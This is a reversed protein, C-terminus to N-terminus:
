GASPSLSRSLARLAAVDSRGVIMLGRFSVGTQRAFLVLCLGCSLAYAVTSAVAAVVFSHHPLFALNIVVNVALGLLCVATVVRIRGEVVLYDLVPGQLVLAVVGPLIWVLAPASGAFAPGYALRVLIGSMLGILLAALSLGVVMVRNLRCIRGVLEEREDPSGQLPTLAIRASVAVQLLVEALAVAVSYLGLERLGRQWDVLFVDLRWVLILALTVVNARLSFRILGVTVASLSASFRIRRPRVMVALPLMSGVAWLAIATSPTLTETLRAIAASVLFFLAGAMSAIGLERIRDELYAVVTWHNLVLLTPTAVVIWILDKPQSIRLARSGAAFYWAAALGIAIIGGAAGVLISSSYLEAISRAAKARAQTLASPM